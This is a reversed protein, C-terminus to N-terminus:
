LGGKVYRVRGVGLSRMFVREGGSRGCAGREVGPGKLLM